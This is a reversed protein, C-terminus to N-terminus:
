LVQGNMNIIEQVVWIVKACELWEQTVELKLLNPDKNESSSTSM